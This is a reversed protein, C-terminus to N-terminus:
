RIDRGDIALLAVRLAEAALRRENKDNSELQPRLVRYVEGRLTFDGELASTEIAPYTEDAIEILMLLEGLSNEVAMKDLEFGMAVEGALTLRLATDKGYGRSKVFERLRATLERNDSAGHADFSDLIFRRESFIIREASVIGGDITVSVAGGDGIEDFARGEPFGCYTIISNGKCTKSYRHVHGLAAYAFGCKAIDASSIPATRSAPVDLEAHACLLTVGDFAPPTFGALANNEFTNSEVFAYGCVQVRPEEFTLVQMEASNFVFVNEPLKDSSYIDVLAYPDHNGPAIVVPCDLSAFAGLVCEETEPSVNRGDFLDGSILLMDFDGDSVYKIMKLFIDRAHQRAAIREAHSLRCFSSDLHLDGMHFIKIM